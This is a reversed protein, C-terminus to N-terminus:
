QLPPLLIGVLQPVAPGALGVPHEPPPVVETGLGHRRSTERRAVGLREVFREGVDVERGRGVDPPPQPPRGRELGATGGGLRLAVVRGDVIPGAAHVEDLFGHLAAAGVALPGLRVPRGLWPPARAGSRASTRRITPRPYRDSGDSRAAP